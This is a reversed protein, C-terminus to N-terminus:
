KKKVFVEGRQTLGSKGALTTLVSALLDKNAVKFSTIGSANSDPDNYQITLYQVKKKIFQAPLAYISPISSGITASRPRVSRTDGYASTVASYPFSLVEKQEKDRFVLRNNTDDFSLTGNMKRNYGFVGGEYKAKFTTPSPPQAPRTSSPPTQTTVSRPRQAPALTVTALLAGVSLIIPSKMATQETYRFSENLQSTFVRASLQQNGFRHWDLPLSAVSRRDGRAADSNPKV